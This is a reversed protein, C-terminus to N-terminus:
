VRKESCINDFICQILESELPCNSYILVIYILDRFQIAATLNSACRSDKSGAFICDKIKNGLM